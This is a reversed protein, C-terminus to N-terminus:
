NGVPARRKLLLAYGWALACLGFFAMSFIAVPASMQGVSLAWASAAVFVLCGGFGLSLALTSHKESMQRYFSGLSLQAPARELGKLVPWLAAQNALWFIAVAGVLVGFFQWSNGPLDPFAIVSIVAGLILAGLLIRMSWLQRRFLKQETEADPIIYPRSWPGSTYFLREGNPGTRFSQEAIYAFYRM